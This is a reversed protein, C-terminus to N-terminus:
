RKQDRGMAYFEPNPRLATLHALRNSMAFLATIAGVDWIEDETLGAKRAAEIDAEGFLEPKRALALALDVIARGREDLEVQWPNTAVRDALQPDKARIRLIAGHAAVCYTCHNAGSTAVVVLEREAKSLGDTREMLADHYDLFARLEAPRHGLARFVNPVFGSKEAIVGIRERLDEPLDELETVGFRSDM